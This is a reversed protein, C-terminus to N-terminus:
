CTMLGPAPLLHWCAMRSEHYHILLTHVTYSGIYLINFASRPHELTIQNSRRELMVPTGCYLPLDSSVAYELAVNPNM